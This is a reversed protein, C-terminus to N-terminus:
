AFLCPWLALSRSLYPTLSLSFPVSSALSLTVASLGFCICLARLCHRSFLSLSLHLPTYSYTCARGLSLLLAHALPLPLPLAAAVAVSYFALQLALFARNQM